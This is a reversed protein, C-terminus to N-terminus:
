QMCTASTILDGHTVLLIYMAQAKVLSEVWEVSHVQNEQDPM